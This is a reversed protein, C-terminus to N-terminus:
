KHEIRHLSCLARLSCVNTQFFRSWTQSIVMLELDQLLMFHLTVKMSPPIQYLSTAEKRTHQVAFPKQLGYLTAPSSPVNQYMAYKKNSSFFIAFKTFNM